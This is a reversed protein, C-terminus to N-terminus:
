ISHRLATSTEVTRFRVTPRMPRILSSSMRPSHVPHRSDSVSHRWRERCCLCHRWQTNDGNIRGGQTNKSQRPISRVVHRLGPSEWLVPQLSAAERAFGIVGGHTPGAQRAPIRPLAAVQDVRVVAFRLLILWFGFSMITAAQHRVLETRSRRFDM